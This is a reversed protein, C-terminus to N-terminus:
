DFKALEHYLSYGLCGAEYGCTIDFEDDPNKSKFNDIVKVINKAEPSVQTKFLVKGDGNFGPEYICLTYNTTHVDMGIEIIRKM